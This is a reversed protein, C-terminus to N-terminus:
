DSPDEMLGLFLPVCAELEIVAYVFPSDLILSVPPVDPMLVGKSMIVETVAAAETGEEDVKMKVKQFVESICLGGPPGGTMTSFDARGPDFALVLGLARLADNFTLSFSKTFRPMALDMATDEAASVYGSLRSATLGRAFDRVGTGDSPRLALFAIKGDDYPLLVGEAGDARIYGRRSGRDSLFDAAVVPGAETKFDRPSTDRGRFAQSWKAKFYLTNLLVYVVDEPLPEEHLVPILGRTKGNVWANIADKAAEASLDASFAEAGFADAIRRAYGESLAFHEDTWGSNAVALETNGAPALLRSVLQSAHAAAEESPVGLLAAFEELTDGAAGEAAMALALWASLPSILPNMQKEKLAERFLDISFEAIPDHAKGPADPVAERALSGGAPLVLALCTLMAFLSKM